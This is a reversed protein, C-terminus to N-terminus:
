PQILGFRTRVTLDLIAIRDWLAASGMTGDIAYGANSFSDEGQETYLLQRGLDIDGVRMVDSAPAGFLTGKVGWALTELRNEAQEISTKGTLRRWLSPDVSLPVESAGTDFLIAQSQFTGIQLPIFFKRDRLIAKAYSASWFLEPLAAENFLCFRQKPYDIVAIRGLLSNLALTGTVEGDGRMERHPFVLSDPIGTSGIRLQHVPFRSDGPKALGARDAADGYSMNVDAGTDLQWRMPKGDLVVPISIAGKASNPGAHWQFAVCERRGDLADSAAAVTLAAAFLFALMSSFLAHAPDALL